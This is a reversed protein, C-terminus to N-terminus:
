GDDGIGRLRTGLESPMELNGKLHKHSSHDVRVEGRYLKFACASTPM